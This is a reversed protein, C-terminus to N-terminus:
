PCKYQEQKTNYELEYKDLNDKWQKINRVVSTMPLSYKDAIAEYGFGNVRDDCMAKLVEPTIKPPRGFLKGEAKARALGSNTREIIINRELEAAAAMVTIIMKGMSSTLDIGDFQLVRLKIKLRKFEDITHLIDSATRGLRDVMTCICTDGAKAKDMMSSFAPRELAKISGSVGEEAYWEDVAYGANTIELKQNETTQGKKTTSVRLYAFITM